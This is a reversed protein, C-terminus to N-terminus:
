DTLRLGNGIARCALLVEEDKAGRATMAISRMSHGMPNM